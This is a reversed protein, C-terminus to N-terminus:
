VGHKRLLSPSGNSANRRRCNQEPVTQFAISWGSPIPETSLKQFIRPQVPLWGKTFRHISKVTETWKEILTVTGDKPLRARRAARTIELFRDRNAAAFENAQTTSIFIGDV